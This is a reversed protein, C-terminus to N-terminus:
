GFRISAGAAKYSVKFRVNGATATFKGTRTVYQPV